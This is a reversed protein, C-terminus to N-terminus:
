LNIGRSFYEPIMSAATQLLGSGKFDNASRKAKLHRRGRRRRRYQQQQQQKNKVKDGKTRNNSVHKTKTRTKGDNTASMQRQGQQRQRKKAIVATKNKQNKFCHAPVVANRLHPQRVEPRGESLVLLDARRPVVGCSVPVNM